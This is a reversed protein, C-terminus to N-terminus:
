SKQVWLACEKFRNKMRYANEFVIKSDAIQLKMARTDNM